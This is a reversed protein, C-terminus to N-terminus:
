RSGHSIPETPPATVSASVAKLSRAASGSTPSASRSSLAAMCAPNKATIGNKATTARIVTSASIAWVPNTNDSWGSLGSKLRRLGIAPTFCNNEGLDNHSVALCTTFARKTDHIAHGCMM